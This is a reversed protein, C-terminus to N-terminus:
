SLVCARSTQQVGARRTLKAVQVAALFKSRSQNRGKKLPSLGGNAFDTPKGRRRPSLAAATLQRSPLASLFDKNAPNLPDAIALVVLSGDVAGLVISTGGPTSAIDRIEAHTKYDAIKVGDAVRFVRVSRHGSHYYVAHADNNTFLTQVTFAGEAKRPILSHVTKGTKLDLLDLGGGTNPAYLGYKGDRTCTGNWRVVARVFSKKKVDWVNAKEDDILAM